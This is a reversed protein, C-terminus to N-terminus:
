RCSTPPSSRASRAPSRGTSARASPRARRASRGEHTRLLRHVLRRDRRGVRHHRHCRGPEARHDRGLVEPLIWAVVAYLAMGSLIIGAIVVLGLLRYFVLMYLAVLALGIIGALIGAHLQDNGLTPSVNEVNVQELMVPLAGYNILKALDTPRLGRHLGRLDGRHRRVVHVSTAPSSRDAGVAGPRRARDGGAQPVAAAALADWKTSGEDTLDVKVTWGQGPLFEAKATSSTARAPSRPRASTTAPPTAGAAAQRAARRLRRAQRQAARPPPSRPSPPSPPRRRVVAIAAKAEAETPSLRPRHHHDRGARHDHHTTSPRRRRPSRRRGASLVPRFRLEATKGM